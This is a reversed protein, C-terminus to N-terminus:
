RVRNLILKKFDENRYIKLATLAIPGVSFSGKAHLDMEFKKEEFDPRFDIWDLQLLGYFVSYWSVVTGTSYAEGTGAQIVFSFEKPKIRRLIKMINVWLFAYLKKHEEDFWVATKEKINKVSTFAKKVKDLINRFIRVLFFEKKQSNGGGSNNESQFAAESFENDVRGATNSKKNESISLAKEGHRGADFPKRGKKKKRRKKKKDSSLLTFNFIKVSYVPKNNILEFRIRVINFLWNASAKAKIKGHYGADINYTMPYFFILLIIGAIVAATIGIIMLITLIISLM